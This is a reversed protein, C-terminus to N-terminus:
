GHEKELPLSRRIEVVRLGRRRRTLRVTKDQQGLRRPRTKSVNGKAPKSRNRLVPATYPKTLQFAFGPVHRDEDYLAINAAVRSPTTFYYRTEAVNFRITEATVDISYAEPIAHRIADAVMCHRSSEKKSNKIIEDTVRIYKTKTKIM